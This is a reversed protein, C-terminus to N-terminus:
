TRRRRLGLVAAHRARVGVEVDGDIATSVPSRRGTAHSGSARPGIPIPAGTNASALGPPRPSRVVKPRTEAVPRENRPGRPRRM